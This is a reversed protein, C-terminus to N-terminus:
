GQGAHRGGMRGSKVSRGKGAMGGQRNGREGVKLFKQTHAGILSLDHAKVGEKFTVKGGM